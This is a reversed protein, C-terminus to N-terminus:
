SKDVQSIEETDLILVIGVQWIIQGFCILYERFGSSPLEFYNFIVKSYSNLIFGTFLAALVIYMWRYFLNINPVCTRILKGNYPYIVKRNYSIFRYLLLLPYYILPFELMSKLIASNNSLIKIIAKLGYTTTNNDLDLLAIENKARDKDVLNFEAEPLQQYSALVNDDILKCQKFGNGYMKCMPCDADILLRSNQIM